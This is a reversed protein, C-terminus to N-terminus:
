TGWTPVLGLILVKKLVGLVGLYCRGFTGLAYQSGAGRAVAGAPQGLHLATMETVSFYRLDITIRLWHSKEAAAV